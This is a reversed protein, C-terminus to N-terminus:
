AGPQLLIDETGSSQEGCVTNNDSKLPRLKSSKDIKGEIVRTKRM